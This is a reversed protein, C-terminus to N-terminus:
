PVLGALLREQIWKGRRIPDTSDNLSHAILWAPHTLASDTRVDPLAAPLLFDQENDELDYVMPYKNYLPQMGHLLKDNM